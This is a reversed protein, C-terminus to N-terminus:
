FEEIDDDDTDTDSDSFAKGQVLELAGRYIFPIWYSTDSKDKKKIFFGISTLENAIKTAEDQAIGWLAALTSSNHESKKGRLAEFYLIYESYESMLTQEYKVKSVTVLSDKFISKDFLMKNEPEKEGRELKQIQDTKLTEFMHIFERPASINLGDRIRSVIWDFTMPNKGVDIKEPLLSLMVEKQKSFNSILIDRNSNIYTIFSDNFIFRRMILNLLGDPNWSITTTKTIHSAERMGGSSIQKMIDDRIFIKLRISSYESFDNYCRLLARLANKELEKSDSFAVDLRDFLIWFEYGETNFAKNAVMLLENVPVKEIRKTENEDNFETKRSFIPMGTDGDISISHEIAKAKRDLIKFFYNKVNFFISSLSALKPLLNAEELTKVLQESYGTKFSYERLAKAILVLCYLKWLFIFSSESPPPDAVLSRFVTEGRVNEAPSIIIGRDLLDTEKVSLLTYLASKGTGKAGLVIDVKGNYINEWQDTEVFYKALGDEEQEAVRSGLDLSKLLSLKTM